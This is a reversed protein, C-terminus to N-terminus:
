DKNWDEYGGRLNYVHKFGAKKMAEMALGGRQGTKCYVLYKKNKDLNGINEAFDPDTFDLNEASKIHGNSYEWPARVDLVIIEEKEMLERAEQPSINKINSM